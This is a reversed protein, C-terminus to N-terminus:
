QRQHVAYFLCDGLASAADTTMMIPVISTRTELAGDVAHFLERSVDEGDQDVAILPWPTADRLWGLRTGAPLTQFNHRDIERDLVVDVTGARAQYGADAFALTVGPRTRVRVPDILLTMPQQSVFAPELRELSLFRMLGAVAVADAALDGGRGCEITVTPATEDFAEMFTGLSFRSTVYRHSFLSALSLRLPDRSQGIAYAPNHGSNNHLDLAAEPRVARLRSLAELAIAGDADDFPPRFCRNLDRRGPLMRRSWCPAVRAADVAGVFFWADVAPTEGARLVHHVARWGSPENGHLSGVVVRARSRDRGPLHFITPGSLARLAEDPDPALDLAAVSQVDIAGSDSPRSM